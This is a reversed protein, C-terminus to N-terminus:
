QVRRALIQISTCFFSCREKSVSSDEDFLKDLLGPVDLNLDHAIFVAVHQVKRLSLAGDLSAVLLYSFLTFCALVFFYWLQFSPFSVFEVLLKTFVIFFMTPQPPYSLPLSFGSLSYHSQHHSTFGFLPRIPTRLLM